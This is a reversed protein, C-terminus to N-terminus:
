SQEIIERAAALGSRYAGEVKAAVFVEGAVVVPVQDGFSVAGIDLTQTPMAYRWRHGVAGVINADLHPAAAAGLLPTWVAPDSELHAAAFAPTSHITVAPLSSVGKQHNDALWAVPGEALSLHGDPLRSAGDLSAM